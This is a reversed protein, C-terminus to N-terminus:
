DKLDKILPLFSNFFLPWIFVAEEKRLLAVTIKGQPFILLFRGPVSRHAGTQTHFFRNPKKYCSSIAGLLLWDSRQCAFPPLSTLFHCTFPVFVFKTM